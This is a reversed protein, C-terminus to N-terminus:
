ISKYVLNLSNELHLKSETIKYTIDDQISRINLLLTLLNNNFSTLDDQISSSPQVKSQSEKRKNKLIQDKLQPYRGKYYDPNKKVWQRQSQRKKELRCALKDCVKRRTEVRKDPYFLDQCIVCTKAIKSKM